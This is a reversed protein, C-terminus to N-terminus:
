EWYYKKIRLRMMGWACWSRSGRWGKGPRNRPSTQTKANSRSHRDAICSNNAYHRTIPHPVRDYSAPRGEAITCWVGPGRRRQLAADSCERTVWRSVDDGRGCPGRLAGSQRQGVPIAVPAHHDRFAPDRHTGFGGICNRPKPPRALLHTLRSDRRLLGQRQFGDETQSGCFCLPCGISNAPVNVLRGRSSGDINSEISIVISIRFTM